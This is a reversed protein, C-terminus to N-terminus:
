HQLLLDLTELLSGINSGFEFGDADSMKDSPEAFYVKFVSQASNIMIAVCTMADRIVM